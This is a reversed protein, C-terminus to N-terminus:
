YYLEMLVYAINFSFGARRGAAGGGGRRLVVCCEARSGPLPPPPRDTKVLFIISQGAASRQSRWGPLWRSFVKKKIKKHLYNTMQRGREHEIKKIGYERLQVPKTGVPCQATSPSGKPQLMQNDLELTVVVRARSWWQVLREQGGRRVRRVVRMLRYLM